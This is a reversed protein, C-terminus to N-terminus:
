FDRKGNDWARGEPSEPHFPNETEEEEEEAKITFPEVMDSVFSLLMRTKARQRKFDEAAARAAEPSMFPNGGTEAVKELTQINESFRDIAVRLANDLQSHEPSDIHITLTKKM